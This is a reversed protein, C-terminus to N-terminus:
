SNKLKRLFMIPYCLCKAIFVSFSSIGKYTKYFYIGSRFNTDSPIRSKNITGGHDHLVGVSPEYWAKKGIRLMRESLIAEEFFLFTHPDMMGCAIFDKTPVIFFSGMMRYYYGAKAKSDDIKRHKLFPLYREYYRGVIEFWFPLYSNPNQYGGDLGVVKPGIIGADKHAKSADILREIVNDDIFKIDDNSFLLYDVDFHKTIFTVGLNNGRAYGSNETNHIVFANCDGHLESNIDNVIEARCLRSIKETSEETAANNVIVILQPLSCKSLENNVYGSTREESKYSVIVTALRYKKM